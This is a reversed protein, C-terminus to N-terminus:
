RMSTQDAEIKVTQRFEANRSRLDDFTGQDVIRGDRMLVIRDCSALSSVQHSILIITKEGALMSVADVVFRETEKDLASTAEDFVLLDAQSYFARAVAVRQRQGGSLHGGVEGVSTDIGDPLKAVFDNLQACHLATLAREEDISEDPVGLAVNRRISDDILVPMQPVYAAHAQWGGPNSRIDTGDVAVVGETPDVLGLLLDILTTKGAGSAGVFGIAEGKRITLDVGTVAPTRAEPYHFSVADFRIERQFPLPEPSAPRPVQLRLSERFDANVRQIAPLAFRLRSSENLVRNVSPMLRVLAVVIIGVVPLIQDMSDYQFLCFVILLLLCLVGMTEVFFRPLQGMTELWAMVRARNRAETAIKEGFFPELGHVKVIKINELSQKTWNVIRGEIDLNQKGWRSLPHRTLLYFGIGSLGLVVGVALTGIPEVLVLVGIVAVGLMGEMAIKLMAMLASNFIRPITNLVDRILDASSHTLHFLYPANLHNAVILAVFYARKRGVFVNIGHNMAAFLINKTVLVVSLGGITILLFDRLPPSSAYAYVMGLWRNHQVAEPDAMIQLVPLFLGITVGEFAAMVVMIFFLGLMQLQSRRDLLGWLDRTAAWM